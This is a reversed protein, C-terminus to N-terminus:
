GSNTATSDMEAAEINQHGDVNFEFIQATLLGVKRMSSILIDSSNALLLIHLM